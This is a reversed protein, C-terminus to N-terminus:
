LHPPLWNKRELLPRRAKSRGKKAESLPKNQLKTLPMLLASSATLKKVRRKSKQLNCEAM